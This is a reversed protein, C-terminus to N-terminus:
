KTSGIATYTGHNEAALVKMFRVFAGKGVSPDIAITHITLHALRNWERVAKLIEEPPMPKAADLSDDTPAGDSLFFITDVLPDFKGTVPTGNVGAFEFAQRLAGLAYTSGAAQLDFIAADAKAKIEATAPVLKDQFTTVQHNFFVINFTTKAELKAIAEGLIRKAVEIKPGTYPQDKKSVGTTEVPDNGIPDKMSGSIDIVFLVRRSVTEVGYYNVPAPAKAGPKVVQPKAGQGSLEDKHEEYWRRWVDAFHGLTQGTLATLAKGFAELLVGEETQMAAVLAPVAKVDGLAQLVAIAARRVPWGTDTLAKTAYEAFAPDKRAAMAELAMIKIAPSDEKQLRKVLDAPKSAPNAVLGGLFVSRARGDAEGAAARDVAAVADPSKMRAIATVSAQAVVSLGELREEEQEIQDGLKKKMAWDKQEKMTFGRFPEYALLTQRHTTEIQTWRFGLATIVEALAKGADADDLAGLDAVAKARVLADGDVQVAEMARDRREKLAAADAAFVPAPNGVVAGASAMAGLAVALVAARVLRPVRPANM